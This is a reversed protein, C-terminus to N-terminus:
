CMVPIDFMQAAYKMHSRHMNICHLYLAKSKYNLPYTYQHLVRPYISKHSYQMHIPELPMGWYINFVTCELRLSIRPTNIRSLLAFIPYIFQPFNVDGPNFPTIIMPSAVSNQNAKTSTVSEM